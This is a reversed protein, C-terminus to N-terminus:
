SINISSLDLIMLNTLVIVLHVVLLVEGEDLNLPRAPNPPAKMLGYEGLLIALKASM